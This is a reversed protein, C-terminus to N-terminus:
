SKTDAVKDSDFPNRVPQITDGLIELTREQTPNMKVPVQVGGGTQFIQQRAKQNQSKTDKVLSYWKQIIQEKPRENKFQKNLNTTVANWVKLKALNIANDTKKSELINSNSEKIFFIISSYMLFISILALLADVEASTFQIQKKAEETNSQAM